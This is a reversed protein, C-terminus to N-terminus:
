PPEQPGLCGLFVELCTGSWLVFFWFIEFFPPDWPGWPGQAWFWFILLIMQFWQFWHKKKWCPFSSSRSEAFTASFSLELYNINRKKSCITDKFIWSFTDSTDFIAWNQTWATHKVVLSRLTIPHRWVGPALRRRARRSNKKRCFLCRFILYHTNIVFNTYKHSKKHICLLIEQTYVLSRKHMCLVRTCARLWPVWPGCGLFLAQAPGLGPGREAISM